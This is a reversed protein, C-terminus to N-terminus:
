LTSPPPSITLSMTSPGSLCHNLESPLHLASKVLSIKIELTAVNVIVLKSFDTILENM